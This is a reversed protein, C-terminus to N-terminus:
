RGTVAADLWTPEAIRTCAGPPVGVCYPCAGRRSTRVHRLTSAWSVRLLDRFRRFDLIAESRNGEALFARALAMLVRACPEVAVAAM